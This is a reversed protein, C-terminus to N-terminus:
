PKAGALADQLMGADFHADLQPVANILGQQRLFDLQWQLGFRGDRLVAGDARAAGLASGLYVEASRAPVAKQYIAALEGRGEATVAASRQYANAKLFGRLFRVALERNGLLRGGYILFAQTADPMVESARALVAVQNGQVLTSLFPDVALAADIAKNALAPVMDPLPMAVIKVESPQVGGAILYSRLISDLIQGPGTIAITRGRLGAASTVAGSDHLDKRVVIASPDGAPGDKELTLAAAVISIRIGRGMANFLAAGSTTVAADVQGTAVAPAIEAGSKYFSPEVTIGQEAFFGKEIGVFVSVPVRLSGFRVVDAAGAPVALLILALAALCARRM